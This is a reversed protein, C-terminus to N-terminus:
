CDPIASSPIGLTRGTVTSYHTQAHIVPVIDNGDIKCSGHVEQLLFQLAKLAASTNDINGGILGIRPEYAHRLEAVVAM